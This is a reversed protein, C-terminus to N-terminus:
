CSNPDLVKKDNCTSFHISFNSSDSGLLLRVMLVDMTVTVKITLWM